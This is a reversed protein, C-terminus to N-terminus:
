SHHRFCQVRKRIRRVLHKQKQSQPKKPPWWGLLMREAVAFLPKEPREDRRDKNEADTCGKCQVLAELFQRMRMSRLIHVPSVPYEADRKHELRTRDAQRKILFHVFSMVLTQREHLIQRSDFSGVAFVTIKSSEAANIPM